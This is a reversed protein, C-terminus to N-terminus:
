IVESDYVEKTSFLANLYVELDERRKEINEIKM